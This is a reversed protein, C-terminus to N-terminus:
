RAGSDLLVELGDILAEYEAKSNSCTDDIRYKFKTPINSSSIILIGIGTENKHNSDDFYLKWLKPELYNLPTEVISHDMISDVVLHGKM